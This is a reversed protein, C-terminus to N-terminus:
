VVLKRNWLLNGREAQSIQSAHMSLRRDMPIWSGARDFCVACSADKDWWSRICTYHFMHGCECLVCHSSLLLSANCCDCDKAETLCRKVTTNSPSLKHFFVARTAQAAIDSNISYVHKDIKRGAKTVALVSQQIIQSKKRGKINIQLQQFMKRNEQTTMKFSKNQLNSLIM